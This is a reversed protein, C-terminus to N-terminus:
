ESYEGGRKTEQVMCFRRESEEQTLAERRWEAEWFGGDQRSEVGADM